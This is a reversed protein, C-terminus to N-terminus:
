MTLLYYHLLKILYNKANPMRNQVLCKTKILMKNSLGWQSKVLM